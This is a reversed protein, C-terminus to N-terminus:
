SPPLSRTVPVTSSSRSRGRLKPTAANKSKPLAKSLKLSGISYETPRPTRKRRGTTVSPMSTACGSESGPRPGRRCMLKEGFSHGPANEDDDADHDHEHDRRRDADEIVERVGFVPQLEDDTMDRLFD